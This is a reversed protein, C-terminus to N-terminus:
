RQKNYVNLFDKIITRHDYGIKPPLNHSSFYKFESGEFNLRIKNEDIEELLYVIAVAHYYPHRKPSSYIGMVEKVRVVTGLEEKMERKVAQEVKEGYKVHGGPLVWYGIFPPIARKVLLVKNERCIFGDITLVPSKIRLLRLINFM